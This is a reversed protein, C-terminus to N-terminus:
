RAAEKLSDCFSLIAYAAAERPRKGEPLLTQTLNMLRARLENLRAPEKLLGCAHEALHKAANKDNRPTMAWAMERVLEKGALINPMGIFPTRVIRRVFKFLWAPRVGYYIVMPVGLIMNELSALGSATLALNLNRRSEYAPGWEGTIGQKAMDADSPYLQPHNRRKYLIGQAKPFEQRIRNWADFLVPLHRTIEGPRSGPLLGVRISLDSPDSMDSQGSTGARGEGQAETLMEVIPHGVFTAPISRNQYLEAEFPFLCLVHDVCNKMRDARGLRSAWIQPSVYYVVKFGTKKAIEALRINFGYFDVPIVADFKNQKFIKKISALLFFYSPLKRIPEVWGMVSKSALDEIFVDSVGALEPGGLAWIEAEPKLQKIQKVLLSALIDGSPDGASIFLRTM